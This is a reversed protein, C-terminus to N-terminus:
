SRKYEENTTAEQAYYRALHGGKIAGYLAGALYGCAAGPAAMGLFVGCAMGGAVFPFNLIADLIMLNSLFFRSM